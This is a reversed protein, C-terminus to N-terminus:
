MSYNCAYRVEEIAKLKLVIGHVSVKDYQCNSSLLDLTIPKSGPNSSSMIAEMDLKKLSSKIETNSKLLIDYGQGQHLYKVVCNVLEVPSKAQHLDNLQIQHQPTFGVVRVSSTRHALTADFYSTNLRGKKIPALLLLTFSVYYNSVFLASCFKYEPFLM